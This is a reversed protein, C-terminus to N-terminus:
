ALPQYIRGTDDDAETGENSSNTGDEPDSMLRTNTPGEAGTKVLNTFALKLSRNRVLRYFQLIVLCANIIIVAATEDYFWGLSGFLGTMLLISEVLFYLLDKFALNTEKKQTLVEEVVLPLVRNTMAINGCLMVTMGWYWRFDIANLVIALGNLILVIINCLLTDSCKLKNRFASVGNMLRENSSESMLTSFTMLGTELVFPPTSMLPPKAICLITHVLCTLMTGLAWFMLETAYPVNFMKLMFAPSSVVIIFIYFLMSLLGYIWMMRTHIYGFLNSLLGELGTTIGFLIGVYAPFVIYEPCRSRPLDWHSMHEHSDRYEPDTLGYWGRWELFSGLTYASLTIRTVLFITNLTLIHSFHLVPWKVQQRRLEMIGLIIQVTLIILMLTHIGTIWYFAKWFHHDTDHGHFVQLASQYIIMYVLTLIWMSLSSYLSTTGSFNKRSCLGSLVMLASILASTGCPLVLFIRVDLDYSAYRRSASAFNNFAKNESNDNRNYRYDDWGNRSNPVPTGDTANEFDSLLPPPKIPDGFNLVALGVGYGSLVLLAIHTLLIFWAVCYNAM